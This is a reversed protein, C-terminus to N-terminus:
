KVTVTAHMGKEHHSFTGERTTEVILCGIEYTGPSLKVTFRGSKGPDVELEDEGDLSKVLGKIMEDSHGMSEGAKKASVMEKIVQSMDQAPYVMLEHTFKGKNTLVFTVEGAPVSTKDLVYDWREGDNAIVNIVNDASTAAAQDTATSTSGVEEGESGCAALLWGVSLFAVAMVLVKGLGM